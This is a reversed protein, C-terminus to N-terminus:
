LTKKAKQKDFNFNLRGSGEKISKSFAPLLDSNKIMNMKLSKEFLMNPKVGDENSVKKSKTKPSPSEQFFSVDSECKQNFWDHNLIDYMNIRESPDEEIMRKILDKCNKSIKWDSFRLKTSVTRTGDKHKTVFPHKGMVIIYLIIGLSYIDLAKTASIDKKDKLEPAMFKETGANTSEGRTGARKIGAIGFDAVKLVMDEYPEKNPDMEFLSHDLNGHQSYTILINQPKLDRHIIGKSHCHSVASLIQLMFFKAQKESVRYGEQKVLYHELEGGDAYDMVLCIDNKVQFSHHLKIINRHNLQKLM